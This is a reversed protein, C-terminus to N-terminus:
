FISARLKLFKDYLMVVEKAAECYDEGRATQWGLKHRLVCHLQM